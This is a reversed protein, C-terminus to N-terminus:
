TALNAQLLLIQQASNENLLLLAFLCCVSVFICIPKTSHGASIEDRNICPMPHNQDSLSYVMTKPALGEVLVLAVQDYEPKHCSVCHFLWNIFKIFIQKSKISSILNAKFVSVCEELGFTLIKGGM